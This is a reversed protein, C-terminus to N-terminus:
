NASFFHHAFEQLGNSGSIEALERDSGLSMFFSRAKSAVTTEALNRDETIRKRM